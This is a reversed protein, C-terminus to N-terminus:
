STEGCNQACTCLKQKEMANAHVIVQACETMMDAMYQIIGAKLDTMDKAEYIADNIDQEISSSGHKLDRLWLLDKTPLDKFYM